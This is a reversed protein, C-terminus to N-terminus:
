GQISNWARAYTINQPSYSIFVKASGFTGRGWIQGLPINAALECAAVTANKTANQRLEKGLAGFAVPASTADCTTDPAEVRELLAVERGSQQYKNRGGLQHGDADCHQGAEPPAEDEWYEKSAGGKATAQGLHGRKNCERMCTQLRPVIADGSGGEWIWRGILVQMVKDRIYHSLISYPAPPPPPLVLLQRMFAKATSCRWETSQYSTACPAEGSQRRRVQITQFQVRIRKPEWAQLNRANGENAGHWGYQQGHCHSCACEIRMVARAHNLILLVYRRKCLVHLLCHRVCTPRLLNNRCRYYSAFSAHTDPTSTAIVRVGKAVGKISLVNLPWGSTMTGANHELRTDRKRM